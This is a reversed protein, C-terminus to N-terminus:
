SVMELETEIFRVCQTEELRTAEFNSQPLPFCDNSDVFYVYVNCIELFYVSHIHLTNRLWMSFSGTSYQLVLLVHGLSVNIWNAVVFM